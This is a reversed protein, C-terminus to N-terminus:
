QRVRALAEAEAIVDRVPRGTARAVAAADDFEAKARHGSIKIRVQHGDIDVLQEARDAAWRDVISVRVGLSGTERALVRRLQGADASRALVCVTFSPRGKKM